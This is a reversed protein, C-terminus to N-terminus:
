RIFYKLSMKLVIILFIIPVLLIMLSQFIGMTLNLMKDISETVPVEINPETVPVKTIAATMDVEVLQVTESVKNMIIYSKPFKKIFLSINGEYFINLNEGPKFIIFGEILFQTVNDFTSSETVHRVVNGVSLMVKGKPCYKLSFIILTVRYFGHLDPPKSWKIETYNKIEQPPITWYIRTEGYEFLFCSLLVTQLIRAHMKEKKPNISRKTQEVRDKM